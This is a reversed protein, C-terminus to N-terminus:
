KWTTEIWKKQQEPSFFTWAVIRSTKNGQGMPLTKVEAADAKKLAQYVGPLISQKSILTSFWLVSEAFLKSQDIMNQVFRDEGGECWLENHQGGFNLTTKSIKQRKLNSLKRNSGAQAEASSAHFPPNCVSLDFCEGKQIIGAFIDRPNPQLRLEIKGKL